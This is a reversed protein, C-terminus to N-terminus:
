RFVPHPARGPCSTFQGEAGKKGPRQTHLGDRARRVFQSGPRTFWFRFSPGAAPFKKEGSRHDYGGVRLFLGRTPLIAPRARKYFEYIEELISRHDELSPVLIESRSVLGIQAALRGLGTM